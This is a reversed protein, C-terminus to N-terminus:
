LCHPLNGPTQGVVQNAADLLNGLEAVSYRTTVEGSRHGPLDQRDEFSVGAAQLLRRFTHKLDHVRVQPLGAKGRARRWSTTNMKSLRKGNLTFLYISHKGRFEDFISKAAANLVVLRNEGNKVRNEAVYAKMARENYDHRRTLQRTM